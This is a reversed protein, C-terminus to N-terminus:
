QLFPATRHTFFFRFHPWPYRQEQIFTLLHLTIMGSTVVPDKMIEHTIPCLFENPAYEDLFDLHVTLEAASRGVIISQEELVKGEEAVNWFGIIGGSFGTM